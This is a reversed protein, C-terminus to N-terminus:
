AVDSSEELLGLMALAVGTVTDVVQPLDGAEFSNWGSRALVLGRAAGFATCQGILCCTLLVTESAEPRRDTAAAVLGAVADHMPNVRNEM